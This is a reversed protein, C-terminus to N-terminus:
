VFFKGIGPFRHEKTFGAIGVISRKGICTPVKCAGDEHRVAVVLNPTLQRTIDIDRKSLATATASCTCDRGRSHTENVRLVGLERNVLPADM